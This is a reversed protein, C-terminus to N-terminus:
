TLSGTVHQEGVEPEQDDGEVAVGRVRLPRAMHVPAHGKGDEVAM